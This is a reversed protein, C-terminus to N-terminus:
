WLNGGEIKKALKNASFILVLGIISQCMGVASAFSFRGEMLGLRYAFTELVDGVEFVSPSYLLFVQEFGNQLINGMRLVLLVVMTPIICPITISTIQRFRSAGDVMAAEYFETDIGTMAALYIITGWGCEKWIEAFVIIWRFYKSEILFNIPGVGFYSLIHNFAGGDASLLNTVISAIVVWSVFHPIYVVTQITKKLWRVRIENLLLALIIPMPFGFILRMLSLVLSNKFVRFFDPSQFLYKFNELGVWESGSLGKAMNYDFFPLVIGYMPIYNFIILYIIGPLAMIYLWYHKKFYKIFSSTGKADKKRTTKTSILTDM